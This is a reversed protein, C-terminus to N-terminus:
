RQLQRRRRQGFLGGVALVLLGASSPEPIAAASVELSTVLWYEDGVSPLDSINLDAAAVELYYTGAPLLINFLFSDDTFSEDDSDLPVSVSVDISDGAWNVDDSFALVDGASDLLSLTPDFENSFRLDDSFVHASFLAQAEVSFSFVDVDSSSGDLDAEVFSIESGSTEGTQFTLAQASAITNGADNATGIESADSFVPNDVVTTNERNSASLQSTAGGAIDLIVRSFPSLTRPTGEREQENLGTSGTAIIHQNQLGGTDGTNNSSLGVASYSVHHVLGLTHGFEHGATGALSRSLEQITEARTDFMPEIASRFNAPAVKPVSGPNGNPNSLFFNSYSITDLNGIDLQASGFGDVGNADNDQGFYLVDHVGAPQTLVFDVNYDAYTSALISHINGQILSREAASFTPEGAASTAENLEDIWDATGNPAGDNGDHFDSTFDLWVDAASAPTVSVSVALLGALWTGKQLSGHLFDVIRALLNSDFQSTM